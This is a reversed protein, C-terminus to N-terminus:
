SRGLSSFIHLSHPVEVAIDILKWSKKKNILILNIIVDYRLGVVVSAGDGLICAGVRM